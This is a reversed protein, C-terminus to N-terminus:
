DDEDEEEELSEICFGIADKPADKELFKGAILHISLAMWFVSGAISCLFLSCIIM